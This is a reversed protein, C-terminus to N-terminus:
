GAPLRCFDSHGGDRWRKVKEPVGIPKVLPKVIREPDPAPIERKPYEPEDRIVRLPKGIRSM